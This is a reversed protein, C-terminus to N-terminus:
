KKKKKPKQVQTVKMYNNHGIQVGSSPGIISINAGAPYFGYAPPQQWSFMPQAPGPAPFKPQTQTPPFPKLQHDSPRSRSPATNPPGYEGQRFDYTGQPPRINVGSPRPTGPGQRHETQTPDREPVAGNGRSPPEEFRLTQFQESLGMSSPPPPHPHSSEAAAPTPINFPPRSEHSPSSAMKMLVDQVQRVAPVMQSKHCSVIMETLDSCEKFSPRQQSENDWCREMLEKMTELGEVGTVEKLSELEPRQGRPVHLHLLSSMIKPNLHPYPQEGTLVSWTLIAYSYVDTAPTPRYNLSVFSEPPMYELTGGYDDDEESQEARQKTTGRKFKSLGFDALRVDLEPNLLVNSPKLDLHLLPPRLGHLYNMGLAVQHLLRFRLAWPVPRVRELLSALSGCEMYEMVIGLRPGGAWGEEEEEYLGFLRLIYIFRAKDM